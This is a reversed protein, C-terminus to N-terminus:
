IWMLIEVFQCTSMTQLMWSPSDTRVLIVKVIITLYLCRGIVNFWSICCLLRMLMYIIYHTQRTSSDLLKWPILLADSGIAGTKGTCTTYMYLANCEGVTTSYPTKTGEFIFKNKACCCKWMILLLYFKMLELLTTMRLHFLILVPVVRGIRM